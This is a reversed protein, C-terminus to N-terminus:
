IFLEPLKKDRDSIIANKEPWNIKLNPDDWRIGQSADPEYYSGVHYFVETDACLTQYGHAFGTPIYLSRNNSETLEIGFWQGFTESNKRIDVAVDFIAGRRCSVIKVEGHPDSQYHLGRLTGKQPNFSINCQVFETHLNHQSLEKKCFSRAFFGREDKKPELTIIYVGSLMTKDFLM